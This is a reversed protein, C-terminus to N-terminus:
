GKSFTQICTLDLDVVDIICEMGIKLNLLEKICCVCKSMVLSNYIVNSSTKNCLQEVCLILGFLGKSQIFEMIWDNGSTKIKRHLKSFMKLNPFSLLQICFEPSAEKLDYDHDITALAKAARLFKNLSSKEGRM